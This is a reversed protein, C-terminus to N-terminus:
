LPPLPRFRQVNVGANRLKNYYFPAVWNLPGLQEFARGEHQLFTRMTAANEPGYERGLNLWTPMHLAEHHAAMLFDGAELDNALWVVNRERSFQGIAPTLESQPLFIVRAGSKEYADAARQFQRGKQARLMDVVRQCNPDVNGDKDKACLGFPDSYSVPDGNAYGYLNLGGALGIPDEQTFQGTTPDYYRNRRYLLGSADQQSQVLSGMWDGRPRDRGDLFTRFKRAPWDIDGCTAYSCSTGDARTAREYQGRWNVHPVVLYPAGGGVGTHNFRMVGLPADIGPGHMYGVRGYQRGSGTQADLNTGTAGNSRMEYLLQDGDWVYRELAHNCETACQPRHRTHQSIRRGLADYRIETILDSDGVSGIIRERGYKKIARLKGDAAYYHRATHRAVEGTGQVHPLEASFKLDGSSPDLDRFVNTGSAFNLHTNPPGHLDFRVEAIRGLGDYRHLYRPDTSFHDRRRSWYVNGHADARHEDSEYAGSSSSFWRSAVVHGRGSYWYEAEHGAARMMARRLKGRADYILTDNYLGSGLRRSVRRGDPDYGFSEALGGPHTAGIVQGRGDYSFGYSDGMLGSVDQLGGWLYYAYGATKVPGPTLAHPHELGVRRGSRDYSYRLGFVHSTFETNPYPDGPLAVTSLIDIEDSVGTSEICIQGGCSGCNPDGPNCPPNGGGGGGGGGSPDSLYPQGYRRLRLSDTQLAGGPYYTRKIRAYRNHAAILAGGADFAFTQVDQPVRLSDFVLGPVCPLLSTSGAIFGDSGCAVQAHFAEPIVRRTMRNTADYQMVISHGSRTRWTTINGAADYGFEQFSSGFHEERIKRHALDYAYSTHVLDVGAPQPDAFRMVDTLNGEPDYLYSVTLTDAPVPMEFTGGCNPCQYAVAPARSQTQTARGLADYITRTSASLGGEIPTIVLTDRGMADQSYETRAGLPTISASLNGRAPDYEFREIVPMGGVLGPAQATSLQKTQPDYGFEWRSQAGRADQQWVRNGTADDYWTMAALNPNQANQEPDTVHTVFDPWVPHEYRYTTTANRGDGYPNLATTQVVNGRANFTATTRFGNPQVVETVLAPFRADGRVLTTTHGLADQIMSPAGYRDLWIRTHDVVDTRPGDMLTHADPLPVPSGLGRSEGPVFTTTLNLGSPDIRVQWLRKSAGEYDYQTHTGRRDIRRRIRNGDYLFNVVRQDLDRIWDLRRSTYGFHTNGAPSEVRFLLTDSTGFTEYIFAYYPGPSGPPAPVALWGLRNQANYDFTTVHGLRNVTWRHQGAGNFLVKTGGPLTRTYEPVGNPYRLRLTDPGRDPNQAVWDYWANPVTPEYIRTSGDGGIWLLRANGVHMLYELGALWWGAGFSSDKRNVVVLEGTRIATHALGNYWFSVELRYPYLGTADNTASYGVAIRRTSGPTWAHPQFGAHARHVGNVFLNVVVDDPISASGPLTVDARVIPHPDAHQSNYTLVPARVQNMTRLAPLTHVVRLDGCEYSAASGAAVSLCLSRGANAGPNVHSVEVLPAAPVYGVVGEYAGGFADGETRATSYFHRGNPNLWRYLPTTGTIWSSSVNGITGEPSWGWGLVKNLESPDATYFHGGDARALRHMPVTGVTAAQFTHFEIGKSEWGPPDENPDPTFFHFGELRRHWRFVPVAQTFSADTVGVRHTGTARSLEASPSAILEVGPQPVNPVILLLPVAILLLRSGTGLM